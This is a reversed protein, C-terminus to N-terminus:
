TLKHSPTQFLVYVIHKAYYCIQKSRQSIVIEESTLKHSRFGAVKGTWRKWRRMHSNRTSPKDFEQLTKNVIVLTQKITHKNFSGYEDLFKLKVKLNLL